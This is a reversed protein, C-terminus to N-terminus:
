AADLGDPFNVQMEDELEAESGQALLNDLVVKTYIFM